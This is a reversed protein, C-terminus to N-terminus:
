ALEPFAQRAARRFEVAAAKLEQTRLRRAQENGSFEMGELDAALQQLRCAGVSAAAGKLAHTAYTWDTATAATAILEITAPMQTLFLDLVEVALMQDQMTYHRLHAEDFVMTRAPSPRRVKSNGAAM